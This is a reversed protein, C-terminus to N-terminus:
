SAQRRMEKVDTIMQELSSILDTYPDATVLRRENIKVFFNETGDKMKVIYFAKRATWDQKYNGPVSGNGMNQTAHM